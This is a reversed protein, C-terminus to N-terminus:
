LGGLHVHIIYFKEAKCVMSASSDAFWKHQKRAGTTIVFLIGHVAMACKLEERM